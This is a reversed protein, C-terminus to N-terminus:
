FIYKASMFPSYSCNCKGAIRRIKAFRTVLISTTSQACIDAPRYTWSSFPPLLDQDVTQEVVSHCRLSLFNLSFASDYIASVVLRRQDVNMTGHLGLLLPKGPSEHMWDCM